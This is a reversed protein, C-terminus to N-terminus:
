FKIMCNNSTFHPFTFKKCLNESELLGWVPQNLDYVLTRLNHVVKISGLLGVIGSYNFSPVQIEVLTHKLM